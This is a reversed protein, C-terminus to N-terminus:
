SNFRLCTASSAFAIYLVTASIVAKKSQSGMLRVVKEEKLRAPTAEPIFVIKGQRTFRNDQTRGFAKHQTTHVMVISLSEAADVRVCM